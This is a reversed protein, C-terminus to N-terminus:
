KNKFLKKHRHLSLDSIPDIGMVDFGIGKYNGLLIFDLVDDDICPYDGFYEESGWFKDWGTNFLLFDATEADERAENVEKMTIPKESKRHRCDIVLAQGIFQTLPLADLTLGKEYVHAPPDIHTGVHSYMRILTEHYGDKEYTAVTTLQPKESGPFVPMRENIAHSLDIVKMGQEM